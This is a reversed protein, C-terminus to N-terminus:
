HQPLTKEHPKFLGKVRLTLAHWGNQYVINYMFVALVIATLVDFVSHQKVFMTSLIISGALIGSFIRVPKKKGLQDNQRVAIHIGLSNYVHISPFLNTPTDSAYIYQCLDTFINKRNFYYPRLYHGNPYVTSIILFVTMGTYLFGCLKYYDKTDKLAFYIIGCAVYGFWLIYPVIFFECFPILDDVPTHIVHFYKTVNAEVMHFWALYFVFYLLLLLHKYNKYLNNIREKLAM